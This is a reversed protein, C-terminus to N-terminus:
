QGGTALPSFSPGSLRAGVGRCVQTFLQTLKKPTLAADFLQLGEVMKLLQPFRCGEFRWGVCTFSYLACACLTCLRRVENLDFTDDMLAASRVKWFAMM